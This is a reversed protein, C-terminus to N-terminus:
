VRERCSARGIESIADFHSTRLRRSGLCYRSQASWRAFLRRSEMRESKEQNRTQMKTNHHRRQHNDRKQNTKNSIFGSRHHYKFSAHIKSSSTVMRRASRMFRLM